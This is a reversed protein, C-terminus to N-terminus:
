SDLRSHPLLTTLVDLQGSSTRGPGEQWSCPRWAGTTVAERAPLAPLGDCCIWTPGSGPLFSAWPGRIPSALAPKNWRTLIGVGGAFHIGGISVLRGLGQPCFLTTSRAFPVAGSHAGHGLPGCPQNGHQISRGVSTVCWMVGQAAFGKHLARPQAAKRAARDAAEDGNYSTCFGWRRTGGQQRGLRGFTLSRPSYITGKRDFGTFERRDGRTALEVVLEDKKTQESLSARTGPRFVTQRICPRTGPAGVSWWQTTRTSVVCHGPPPAKKLLQRYLRKRASKPRNSGISLSIERDFSLIAGLVKATRPESFNPLGVADLRMGWRYLRAVLDVM